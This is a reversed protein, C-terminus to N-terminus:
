AAKKTPRIPLPSIRRIRALHSSMPYIKYEKSTTISKNSSRKRRRRGAKVELKEKKKM